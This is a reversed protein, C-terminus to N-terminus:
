ALRRIARAGEREHRMPVPSRAREWVNHIRKVMASPSVCQWGHRPASILTTFLGLRADALSQRSGLDRKRRPLRNRHPLNHRAYRDEEESFVLLLSL